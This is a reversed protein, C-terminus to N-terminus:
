PARAGVAAGTGGDATLTVVLGLVAGAGAGIAAAAYLPAPEDCAACASRGVGYGLVGGVVAGVVANRVWPRRRREDQGDVPPTWRAPEHTPREALVLYGVGDPSLQQGPLARFPVALASLLFLTAIRSM